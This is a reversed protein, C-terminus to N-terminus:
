REAAFEGMLWYPGQCRSPIPEHLESSFDWLPVGGGGLSIREGVRAAVRGNQDLVEIVGQDDNLFYDAQWIVLYSESGSEDEIRLCGADIILKGQLLAEMYASRRARLQPFFVDPVPKLDFPHKDGLATYTIIVIMHEPLTKGAKQLSAEWLAQDTVYLEVRNEQVNIGSSFPLSLDGALQMVNQQILKLEALTISATRLEVLSELPTNEIYPKIIEPGARTFAVVVRYEPKQQIWLGAFTSSEQQELQAGLKGISDQQNLRRIAEDVTIGLDTAMAQADMSLADNNVMTVIPPPQQVPPSAPSCGGLTLCLLLLARAIRLPDKTKM